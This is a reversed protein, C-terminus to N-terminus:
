NKVQASSCRFTCRPIPQIAQLARDRPGHQLTAVGNGANASRQPINPIANCFPSTSYKPWITQVLQYIGNDQTPAVLAWPSSARVRDRSNRVLNSALSTSAYIKAARYRGRLQVWAKRSGAFKTHQEVTRRPQRAEREPNRLPHQRRVVLNKKSWTAANLGSAQINETPSIQDLRQWRRDFPQSVAM